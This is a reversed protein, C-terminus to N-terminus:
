SIPLGKDLYSTRVNGLGKNGINKISRYLNMKNKSIYQKQSECERKGITNIREYFM